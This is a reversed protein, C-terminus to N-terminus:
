FKYSLEANVTRPLLPQRGWAGMFGFNLNNQYQFRNALNRGTLSLKWGDDRLVSIEANLERVNSYKTGAQRDLTGWTGDRFAYDAGFRLSYGGGVPTEYRFGVTGSYKPIDLPQTIQADPLYDFRSADQIGGNLYIDLGDVIRLNSELELGVVRYAMGNFMVTIATGPIFRGVLTDKFDNMFATLNLRVRRNAFENKVGIEYAEVKEPGTPTEGVLRSDAAATYGGARFGKGYSAYLFSDRTVQWNLGVKPTFAKYSTDDGYTGPDTVSPPAFYGSIDKTEYTYRGGVTLELDPTFKYGLQAYAAYSDAKNRYFKETLPIYLNPTAPNTDFYGFMTDNFSQKTTETFFFGGVIWSLREDVADGFLQLEETIQHQKIKSQRGYALTYDGFKDVTGGVLDVSWKDDVKSWGTISKVTVDGFDGVVHLSASPNKTLGEQPATTATDRRHGTLPRLPDLLTPSAVFGDNRNHNYGVTLVVDWIDSGYFHLKGRVGWFDREDIDRGTARNYMYGKGQDKFVGSVSAALVDQVIAGGLSAKVGFTRYNGASIAATGYSENDPTRTIVNVAGVMSNRGFLTGQPGRLVEIREIDALESNVASPRAQYVDDFYFSVPQETTGFGGANDGRGRMALSITSANAIGPQMYFNPVQAAVQDVRVIGFKSLDESSLASVTVPTSQLSSARRTATVTIEELGDPSPAATEALAIEAQAHVTLPLIAAASGLLVHLIKM